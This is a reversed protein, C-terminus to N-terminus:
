KPLPLFGLAEAVASQRDDLSAFCVQNEMGKFMWEASAVHHLDAGRLYDIELISAAADEDIVARIISIRELWVRAKSVEVGERRCASLTESIILDSAVLEPISRVANFVREAEPQRFLVALLASTDLYAAAIM